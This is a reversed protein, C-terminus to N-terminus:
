VAARGAPPTGRNIPINDMDPRLLDIETLGFARALRTITDLKVNTARIEINAILRPDCSAIEALAHQTLGAAERAQRLNRAFPRRIESPEDHASPDGLERSVRNANM